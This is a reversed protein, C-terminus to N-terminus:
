PSDTSPEPENLSEPPPLDAMEPHLEVGEPIGLQTGVPLAANPDEGRAVAEKAAKELAKQEELYPSSVPIAKVRERIESLIKEDEKPDYLLTTSTDSKMKDVLRRMEKIRPDEDAPNKSQSAPVMQELERLSPMATLDKLGFLELFHDTTSYLMPRGPLESRGTIAILKKDLLGRVFYSSDVGRIKDIEEKMTPQRYAIIALTEMGGSSLRQTQIKSLKKALAARGPKTRLQWGGAIEVLEIGHSLGQYRLKLEELAQEFLGEKFDPGLWEKLKKVSTPKDVMFLLTEICSQLESLDLRGQEDPTPEKPLAALLEPDTELLKEAEAAERAMEAALAQDEAIQRELEAKNEVETEASAAQAQAELERNQEDIARALNELQEDSAEGKEISLEPHKGLEDKLEEDLELEEGNKQAESIELTRIGFPEDIFSVYDNGGEPNGVPAPDMAPGAQKAKKSSRKETKEAAKEDPQWDSAAEILDDKGNESM